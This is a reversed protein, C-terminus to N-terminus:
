PQRVRRNRAEVYAALAAEVPTSTSWTQFHAGARGAWARWGDMLAQYEERYLHSLLAGDVRHRVARNELDGFLVWQRFPFEEETPDRIQFLIVEHGRAQLRGLERQLPAPDFLFDSVVAILGRRGARDAFTRVGEALGDRGAAGAGALAALIAVLDQSRSGPPLVREMGDALLWLGAADHEKIVLYALAAALRRAHTAKAPMDATAFAMSASCDVLIRVALATDEHYKKTYWKEHRASAKWDMHKLPDGPVYLAHRDFDSSVGTRRSRHVGHRMGDVVRRAILELHRLEEKAAPPLLTDFPAARVARDPSSTDASAM